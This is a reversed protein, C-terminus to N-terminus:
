HGKRKNILVDKINCRLVFAEKNTQINKKRKKKVITKFQHFIKMVFKM